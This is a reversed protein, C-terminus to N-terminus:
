GPRGSATGACTSATRGLWTPTPTLGAKFYVTTGAGKAKAASLARDIGSSSTVRVVAGSAMCAPADVAITVGSAAVLLLVLFRRLM